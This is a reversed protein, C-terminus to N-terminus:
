KSAPPAPPAPPPTGPAEAPNEEIGVKSYADKFTKLNSKKKIEDVAKDVQEKKKSESLQSKITEKAEELSTVGETKEDVTLVHWGFQTQFPESIQGKPTEFAVKEFPPTMRGRGFTGLDGGKSASPCKSKAKAVDSFKAPNAKVEKYIAKAEAETDVLIHRVKVSSKDFEEPHADYYKKVDEDSIQVKDALPKINKEYFQSALVANTNLNLLAQTEPNKEIGADKAAKALVAYEVIQDILAARRQPDSFQARYMPNLTNLFVNIEDATIKGGNFEAIVTDKGKDAGSGSKASQCSATFALAFIALVTFAILHLKRIKL